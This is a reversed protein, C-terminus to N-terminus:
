YSSFDDDSSPRGHAHCGPGCDHGEDGSFQIEEEPASKKKRQQRKRQNKRQTPTLKKKPQSSDHVSQPTSVKTLDHVIPKPKTDATSPKVSVDIANDKFSSSILSSENAMQFGPDQRFIELPSWEKELWDLKPTRHIRGTPMMSESSITYFVLRAINQNLSLRVRHRGNNQIVLPWRSLNKGCLGEVTIGCNIMSDLMEYKAILNKQVSIFPKTFGLIRHGPKLDIYRDITLYTQNWVAAMLKPDQPDLLHDHDAPKFFVSHLSFEYGYPSLNEHKFPIILVDETQDVAETIDADSLVGGRYM